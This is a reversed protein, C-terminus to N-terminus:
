CLRQYNCLGLFRQLEKRNNPKPYKEMAEMKKPDVRIGNRDIIHGLFGVEEKLLCCKAPLAKLGDTGLAALVSDLDKNHEEVTRGFILIDDMFLVCAKWNVNRM